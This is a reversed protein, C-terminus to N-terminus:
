RTVGVSSFLYGKLDFDTTADFKLEAIYKSDRFILIFDGVGFVFTELSLYHGMNVIYMALPDIM